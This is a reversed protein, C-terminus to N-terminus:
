SGGDPEAAAPPAQDAPTDGATGASAPAAAAVDRPDGNFATSTFTAYTVAPGLQALATGLQVALTQEDDPTALHGSASLSWSM